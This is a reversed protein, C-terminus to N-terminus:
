KEKLVNWFQPFEDLHTKRLLRGVSTVREDNKSAWQAEGDTEADKVMTRFKIIKYPKAAKGLREQRYFIPLGNDLFILLAVPPLLM